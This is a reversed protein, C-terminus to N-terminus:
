SAPIIFRPVQYLDSRRIPLSCGAGVLDSQLKNADLDSLRPDLIVEDFLMNPDLSYKYVGGGGRKSPLDVDQFLLRIESEHQFATRKLCLLEAFHDGQGGIAIDTFTLRSMLNIIDNESCYKVKGIFFQLYPAPSGSLKINDFIKRITTRVKVGPRTLPDPSYIRWMADTEENTSWCQGYWDAALNKLPITSGTAPDKVETRELFFNEFPDDWKTPNVVADEKSALLSKFRDVAYIRYVYEDLDPASVGVLNRETTDDVRKEM